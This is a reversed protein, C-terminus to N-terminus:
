SWTYTDATESIWKQKFQWQKKQFADPWLAAEVIVQLSPPWVAFVM